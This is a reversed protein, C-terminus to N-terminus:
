CEPAAALHSKGCPTPQDVAPSKTAPFRPICHVVRLRTRRPPRRSGPPCQRNTAAPHRRRPSPDGRHRRPRAAPSPPPVRPDRVRVPDRHSRRRGLTPDHLKVTQDRLDITVEASGPHARGAAAITQWDAETSSSRRAPREPLREGEFIDAFGEGKGPAIVARFGAQMVAWVAHERSSGCGFNRGVVLVTAGAFAPDNLPFEPLEPATGARPRRGRSRRRACVAQRRLAPPRLRHARGAEPLAGPHDPRHQRRELRARGRPRPAHRVTGNTRDM